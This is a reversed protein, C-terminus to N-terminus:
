ALPIVADVSPRDGLVWTSHGAGTADEVLRAGGPVFRHVRGGALGIEIAGSRSIIYQRRPAPLWDWFHGPPWERFNITSAALPSTIEPHASLDFEWIHSRGDGGNYLRFVGM